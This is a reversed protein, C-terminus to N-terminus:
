YIAATHGEITMESLSCIKSVSIYVLFLYSFMIFNYCSHNKEMCLFVHIHCYPVIYMTVMNYDTVKCMQQLLRVPLCHLM